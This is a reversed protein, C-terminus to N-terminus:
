SLDAGIEKKKMAFYFYAVFNLFEAYLYKFFRNFLCVCM